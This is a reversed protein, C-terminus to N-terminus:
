VISNTNGNKIKLKELYIRWEKLSEANSKNIFTIIHKIESCNMHNFEEAVDKIIISMNKSFIEHNEIFETKLKDTESIISVEEIKNEEEIIKNIKEQEELEKIRTSLLAM